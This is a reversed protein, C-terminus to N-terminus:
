LWSLHLSVHYVCFMIHKDLSGHNVAGLNFYCLYVEIKQTDPSRLCLLMATHLLQCALTVFLVHCIRLTLQVSVTGLMM